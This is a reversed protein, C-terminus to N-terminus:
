FTAGYNHLAERMAGVNRMNLADEASLSVGFESELAMILNLQNLSDWMPLSDLSVEESLENVPVDLVQAITQYLRDAGNVSIQM